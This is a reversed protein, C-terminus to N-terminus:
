HEIMRSVLSNRNISEKTGDLERQLVANFNKVVEMKKQSDRELKEHLNLGDKFSMNNLLVSVVYM